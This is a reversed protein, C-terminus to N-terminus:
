IEKMFNFEDSKLDKSSVFGAYIGKLLATTSEYVQLRKVSDYFQCVGVEKLEQLNYKFGPHNICASVVSIISSTKEEGKEAKKKDIELQRKDKEIFWKKMIEDNTMKEEPFINFVERLYQCIHQYVEENIEINLDKSYLEITEKDDLEKKYIEFSNWDLDGFILKSVEKDVGKYIMLFLEFDSIQNWDVGMEWLVLRYSTTNTIFLNLTSYFRREGISIVDGITPQYVTLQGELGEVDIIYPQAFYM